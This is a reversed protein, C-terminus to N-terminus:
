IIKEYLQHLRVAEKEWTLEGSMTLANSSLLQYLTPNEKLNRIAEAINDPVVDKLLIGFNYKENLYRHEPVDSMIVPLGAQAYEFVKNSVSLKFNINVPRTLVVGVHSSSAAAVLDAVEVPASFQVIDELHNEKVLDRLGQEASGYGRLVLRYGKDLFMASEIFEEYGRGAVMLGQYVAEFRDEAKAKLPNTNAMPCNTIVVPPDINYKDAFYESAAHSVCIMADIRKLLYREAKITFSHYLKSDVVGINEAFIEHSDYIIKAKTKRAAIYSYILTDFDNSHIVDPKFRKMYKIPLVFRYYARKLKGFFSSIHGVYKEGLDVIDVKCGLGDLFEKDFFRDRFGVFQVEYGASVASRVQKIVRPDKKLSNAVTISVRM